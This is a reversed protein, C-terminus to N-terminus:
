PTESTAKGDKALAQLQDRGRDTRMAGSPALHGGCGGLAPVSSPQSCGSVTAAELHGTGRGANSCPTLAKLLHSLWRQTGQTRLSRTTLPFLGMGAAHVRGGKRGTLAKTCEPCLQGCLVATSGRPALPHPHTHPLCLSVGSEWVPLRARGGSPM